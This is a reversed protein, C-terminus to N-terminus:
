KKGEVVAKLNSLGKEYQDGIMKDCDMFLGVAKAMFNNKGSMSWTVNTQNGQPVFQFDVNSTGPFPKIFDLRIKIAENPRSETITMSGEGVNQNGVWHFSSGVGSAPGNFTNKANPDLELWPSWAEWNHFDNVQNFINEASASITTSRTVKFESLRSSIFIILVILVLALILFIKKLM